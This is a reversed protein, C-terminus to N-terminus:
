SGILIKIQSVLERGLTEKSLFAHAGFQLARRRVEAADHISTVIIKSNPSAKFIDAIASFDSMGPMPIYIIVVEPVSERSKEIVESGKAAEACVVYGAEELLRRMRKRTPEHGDAILISTPMLLIRGILGTGPRLVRTFV